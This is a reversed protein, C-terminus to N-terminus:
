KLKFKLGLRFKLKQTGLIKVNQRGNGTTQFNAKAQLQTSQILNQMQTANVPIFTVTEKTSNVNGAEDVPAAEAIPSLGQFLSDITTSNSAKFYFQLQAALPLENEVILKFEGEAIEDIDEFPLDFVEMAVFNDTRGLVPIEVIIQAKFTSSDAMFGIISPDDDPNAIATIAYEIHTIKSEFIEALNSNTYDLQLISTKSEGIENLDPYNIDVGDIADARVPISIGDQTRANLIDIQSRLPVGFSSQIIATIKPEAFRIHGNLFREDYLDIPITDPSLEYKQRGWFGKLLKIKPGALISANELRIPKGTQDIASYRVELENNNPRITYGGLDLPLTTGTYANTEIKLMEGSKTVQPMSFTINVFSNFPKFQFIISGGSVEAELIDIDGPLNLPLFIATDSITSVLPFVLDGFISQTNVVAEESTYKFTLDGNSAMELSQNPLDNQWIDPFTISAEKIIPIAFEPKYETTKLDEEFNKCSFLGVLFLGFSIFFLKKM